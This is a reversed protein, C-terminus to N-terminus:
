KSLSDMLAELGEAAKTSVKLWPDDGSRIFTHGFLYVTVTKGDAYEVAIVWTMGTYVNPDEEFDSVMDMNLIYEALTEANEGSFSYDYGQPMSSVTVATIGDTGPLLTNPTTKEQSKCGALMALCLVLILVAFIKKGM